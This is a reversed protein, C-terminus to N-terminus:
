QVHENPRRPEAGPRHAPRPEEVTVTQIHAQSDYEFSLVLTHGSRNKVAFGVPDDVRPAIAMKGSDVRVHRAQSIRIAM